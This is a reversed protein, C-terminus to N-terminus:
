FDKWGAPSPNGAQDTSKVCMRLPAKAKSIQLIRSGHSKYGNTDNCDTSEPKGGKFLPMSLYPLGGEVIWADGNERLVLISPVDTPPTDDIVRLLVSAHEPRQWDNDIDLQGIVCMAYVGDAAEVPLRNLPQERAHIPESYGDPAACDITAADGHKYRIWRTDDAVIVGWRAPMSEGEEEVRSKTQMPVTRELAVGDGADLGAPDWGGDARFAHALPTILSHYSAGDSSVSRRGPLECPSDFGCPEFRDDVLTGLVGIVESTGQRIVPAGSSGGAAGTCNMRAEHTWFWEEEFLRLPGSAQCSSHRLFREPEPIRYAPVHVIEVPLDDMMPLATTVLPLIGRAKLEGYTTDLRFVAIDVGKTTAHLMRDLRVPSHSATSDRFYAPTFSWGEPPERDLMAQNAAAKGTFVCHGSTLLLAPRADDPQASGAVISATCSRGDAMSILGVARYRPDSTSPLLPAGEALTSGVHTFVLLALTSRAMRALANRSM